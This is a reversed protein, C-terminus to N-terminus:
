VTHRDQEHQIRRLKSFLRRMNPPPVAGASDLRPMERVAPASQEVMQAQPEEAVIVPEEVEEVEEVIAEPQVVDFPDTATEEGQIEGFDLENIQEIISRDTMRTIDLCEVGELGAEAPIELPIGVVSEEAVPIAEDTSESRHNEPIELVDAESDLFASDQEQLMSRGDDLAAYRDVVMEEEFCVHGSHHDSLLPVVGAIVNGVTELPISYSQEDDIESMESMEDAISMTEAINSEDEDVPVVQYVDDDFAEKNEIPEIQTDPPESVFSETGSGCIEVSEMDDSEYDDFLFPEHDTEDSEETSVMTELLTDNAPSRASLADLPGEARTRENWHLPLQKLDQLAEDVLDVNVQPLGAAFALLLSHDCLQNLCRPLGDSAHAIAKIAEDTFIQQPNAGAWNTRYELYGLSESQTLLEITQQCAIRQNLDAMAPGALTEELEPHGCLLVRVLPMGRDTLNTISRVEELLRESLLHAEDLIVVIGQHRGGLESRCYESLLLRLEQEAMGRYPRGLEFLLSQLFSRRTAFNANKLFAIEFGDSLEEALRHCLLTKGTGAAGTLVGIGQGREMCVVFEALTERITDTIFVCDPDPTASFPRREFRFHSEYM